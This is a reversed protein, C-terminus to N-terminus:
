AIFAEQTMYALKAETLDADGVKQQETGRTNKFHTDLPGM